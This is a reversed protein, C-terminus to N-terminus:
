ERVLRYFRASDSPLSFYVVVPHGMGLVSTTLEAGGPSLAFPMVSWGEEGLTTSTELRYVAGIEGGFALELRDSNASVSRITFIESRPAAAVAEASYASTLQGTGLALVRYVYTANPDLGTDVFQTSGAPLEARPRWAYGNALRREVRYGTENDAEDAWTVSAITAADLTAGTLRPAAPANAVAVELLNNAADYTYLTTTGHTDVSRVLRDADDYFHSEAPVRAGLIVLVLFTLVRM